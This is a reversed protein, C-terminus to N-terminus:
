NFHDDLDLEFEEGQDFPILPPKPPLPVDPDPLPPPNEVDDSPLDQRNQGPLRLDGLPRRWSGRGRVDIGFYQESCVIDSTAQMDCKCCKTLKKELDEQTKDEAIKRAVSRKVHIGIGVGTASEACKENFDPGINHLRCKMSCKVYWKVVKIRDRYRDRHAFGLYDVRNVADNGVMVYLNM